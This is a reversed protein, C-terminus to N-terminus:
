SFNDGFNLNPPLWALQQQNLYFLAGTNKDYSLYSPLGTGRSVITLSLEKMPDTLSLEKMPDALIMDKSSVETSLLVDTTSNTLEIANESYKISPLSLSVKSGTLIDNGVEGVLSDKVSGGILTDNAQYAPSIANSSSITPTSIKLIDDNVSFDTIIDIGGNSYDM